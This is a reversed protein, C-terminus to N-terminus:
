FPISETLVFGERDRGAGPKPGLKYGVIRGYKEGEVRRVTIACTECLCDAQALEVAEQATEPM